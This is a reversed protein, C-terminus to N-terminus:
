KDDNTDKSNIFLNKYHGNKIKLVLSDENFRALLAEATRKPIRMTDTIKLFESTLFEEPLQLLLEYNRGHHKSHVQHHRMFRLFDMSKKMLLHGLVISMYFDEDSCKISRSTLKSKVDIKIVTLIMAIKLLRPALRFVFPIADEGYNLKVYEVWGNFTSNLRDTQSASFEVHIGDYDKLYTYLSFAHKKVPTLESDISFSTEELVNKWELSGSFSYYLMRSALGDENSPIFDLIQNPTGSLILALKPHKIIIHERDTKRMVEYPENESCIRLGDSFGGMDKASSSKTLTEAESAFILGQNNRNDALQLAWSASTINPAIFFTKYKKDDSEDNLSEKIETENIKDFINRIWKMSSKGSGARSYVVFYLNPYITDGRYNTSVNGLLAGYAVLVSLLFIDKQSAEFLESADKLEKPLNKYFVPPITYPSYFSSNGM